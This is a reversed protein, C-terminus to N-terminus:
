CIAKNKKRKNILYSILKEILLTSAIVIFIFFFGKPQIGIEILSARLNSMLERILYIFRMYYPASGEIKFLLLGGLATSIISQNEGGNDKPLIVLIVEYEKNKKVDAKKPIDIKIKITQYENPALTFTKKGQIKLWGLNPCLYDGHPSLCEFHATATLPEDGQNSYTFSVFYPKNQILPDEPKFVAPSLFPKASAGVTLPIASLIILITLILKRM